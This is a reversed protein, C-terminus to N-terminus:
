SRVGDSFVLTARCRSDGGERCRRVFASERSIYRGWGERRGVGSGQECDWFACPFGHGEEADVARLDNTGIGGLGDEEASGAQASPHVHLVDTNGGGGGERVM